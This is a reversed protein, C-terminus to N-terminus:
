RRIRPSPSYRRPHRAFFFRSVTGHSGPAPRHSKRWLLAHRVTIALSIVPEPVFMSTQRLRVARTVVVRNPSPRVAVGGHVGESVMSYNVKGDTFTDGSSCEVGFMAGIEGSKIEEVDEMENAHLRVLRPVKVKKGTKANFIIDGRRM